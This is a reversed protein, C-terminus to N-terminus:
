WPLILSARTAPDADAFTTKGVGDAGDVAALRRGPRVKAVADAAEVISPHDRGPLAM